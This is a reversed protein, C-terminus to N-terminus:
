VLGCVCVQEVTHEAIPKPGDLLPPGVRTNSMLVTREDVYSPLAYV